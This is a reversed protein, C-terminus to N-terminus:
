NNLKEKLHILNKKQFLKKNMKMKKMKPRPKFKKSKSKM